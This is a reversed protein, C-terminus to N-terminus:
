EHRLAVVPEVRSARLSPWYGALLAVATLVVVTGTFALPDTPETNYLLSAIWRAIVFSAIAGLTLGMFALRLTKSIVGRQVQGASAGLAMRIGIEHTQRTVSYSIVGFIGLAALALGFGAFVSVFMVFFRRPSVSHDVLSRLPRFTNNPQAPNLRRLVPMVSASLAEPPLKSRVVLQAGEPGYFPPLYIEFDPSSELSRVRVDSVVGIVRGPDKGFGRAERGIPDQGPWHQRAARENIIVVPQKNLAEQWSLDRGKVLRIGMADLYGPTVIRVIAGQEEGKAYIRSPNVLGWGRERDLPLMDAVGAAEVGPLAKVANVIEYLSPSTKEGDKGSEYVIDVVAAQSPQFGLDVDLVRLFSRLLLGCGVLLVCALAIESVVLTSRVRDHVRGQSVGRGGDKLNEQIKVRSLVIGPVIGFLAAVALTLLVTWGLAAGDVGITSLLPLSVSGQHALYATIGYALLVGLAAGISSLALSETLLQGILRGRSAGLASRM